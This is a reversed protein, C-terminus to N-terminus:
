RAPDGSLILEAVEPLDPDAAADAMAYTTSIADASLVVDRAITAGPGAPGMTVGNVAFYVSGANGSRLLPAEASEPVTYSDGRNLTGEFLTAGSASTVRVWSPRVAFIVLEDSRAETVRVSAPEETARPEAAVSGAVTTFYASNAWDYMAWGFLARRDNRQDTREAPRNGDAGDSM